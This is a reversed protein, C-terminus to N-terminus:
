WSRSRPGVQPGALVTRWGPFGEVKDAHDFDAYWKPLGALVRVKDSRERAQVRERATREDVRLLYCHTAGVLRRAAWRASSTAGSRIVVARASPDAALRRLAARFQAESSWKSDDRDFVELGSTRAVTTKGAGPPGCLVVVVRDAPPQTTSPASSPSNEM